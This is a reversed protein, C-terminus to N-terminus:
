MVIKMNVVNMMLLRWLCSPAVKLIPLFKLKVMKILSIAMKHLNIFSSKRKLMM